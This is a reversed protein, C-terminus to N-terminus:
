ILEFDKQIKPTNTTHNRKLIEEAWGVVSNWDNFAIILLEALEPALENIHVWKKCLEDISKTYGFEEPSEVEGYSEEREKAVSNITNALDYVIHYDMILLDKINNGVIVYLLCSIRDM